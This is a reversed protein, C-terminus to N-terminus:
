EVRTTRARVVQAVSTLKDTCKECAELRSEVRTSRASVVQVASSAAQEIESRRLGKNSEPERVPLFQGASAVAQVTKSRRLGKSSGPEKAPVFQGASVVAQATELRRPCEVRIGQCACVTGGIRCSTYDGFAKPRSEVQNRVPM